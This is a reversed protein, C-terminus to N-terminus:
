GVRVYLVKEEFTSKNLKLGKWGLLILIPSWLSFNKRPLFLCMFVPVIKVKM